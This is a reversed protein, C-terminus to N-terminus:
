QYKKVIDMCEGLIESYEEIIKKRYKHGFQINEREDELKNKKYGIELQEIIWQLYEKSIKDKEYNWPKNKKTFHIVSLDKLTFYGKNIFYDIGIFFMNYKLSLHLEKKNDWDKAYVQIVDQDGINNIKNKLSEDDEMIKKFKPIINNQPTIVLTGSTLKQYNPNINIGIHRDVVASLNPKEFLEDINNRIYMDSDLYVIKDFETLEFMKLKDFTHSWQEWAPNKKNKEKIWNPLDISNIRLLNINNDKLINVVKNSVNPTILVTLQYKSKVMNLCKNLALVGVVYDDTSILTVYSKKNM